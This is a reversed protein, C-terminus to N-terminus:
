SMMLSRSLCIAMSWLRMVRAKSVTVRDHSEMMFTIYQGLLGTPSTGQCVASSRVTRGAKLGFKVM